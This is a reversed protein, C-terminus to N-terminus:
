SGQQGTLGRPPRPVHGGEGQVRRASSAAGIRHADSALAQGEAAAAATTTVTAATATSATQGGRQGGRGRDAPGQM